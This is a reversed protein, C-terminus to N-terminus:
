FTCKINLLLLVSKRFTEVMVVLPQTFIILSREVAIMTTYFTHWKSPRSYRVKVNLSKMIGIIPRRYPTEELLLKSKELDGLSANMANSAIM